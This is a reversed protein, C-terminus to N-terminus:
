KKKFFRTAVVAAVLGIAVLGWSSPEPVALCNPDLGIVCAQASQMAAASLATVAGVISLISKM